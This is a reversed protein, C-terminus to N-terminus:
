CTPRATGAALRPRPRGARHGLGPRRQAASPQKLARIPAWCGGGRSYCPEPVAPQRRHGRDRRGHVAPREPHGPRRRRRRAGRRLDARAGRRRPAGLRGGDAEAPRGRRAGPRPGRGGGGATLGRARVIPGPSRTPGATAPSGPAHILANVQALLQAAAAAAGAPHPVPRSRSLQAVVDPGNTAARTQQYPQSTVGQLALGLTLTTTAATIALLLLVAQAPRHRLDRAALRGVLLIKGMVTLGGARRARRPQRQHRRHLRTQDVFAGDRMSILRDATAAIRSDHTVIVLTQGAPASQRVAAARGPHGRQGPQRHARRGARGAPRRGPRPRGRGAAAPRRVAGLAPVQGPRGARGAGAAGRGAQRAARPSRGALLAPLEVNEM